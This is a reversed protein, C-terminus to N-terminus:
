QTSEAFETSTVVAKATIKTKGSSLIQEQDEVPIVPVDKAFDFRGRTLYTVAIGALVYPNLIAIPVAYKKSKLLSEM